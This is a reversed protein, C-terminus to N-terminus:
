GELRGDRTKYDSKLSNLLRIELIIFICKEEQYECKGAMKFTLKRKLHTRCPVDIEKQAREGFAMSGLVLYEIM